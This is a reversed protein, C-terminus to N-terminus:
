AVTVRRRSSSTPSAAATQWAQALRGVADRLEAETTGMLEPYGLDILNQLQRDLEAPSTRDLTTTAPTASAPM